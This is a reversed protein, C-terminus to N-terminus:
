SSIPHDRKGINILLIALLQNKNVRRKLEVGAFLNTQNAGVSCPLGREKAHNHALFNGVFAFDRDWLTQRDTIEALINLFHRTARHEIFGNGDASADTIEM